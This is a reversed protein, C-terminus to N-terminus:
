VCVSVHIACAATPESCCTSGTASMSGAAWRSGVAHPTLVVADDLPTAQVPLARGDHKTGYEHLLEVLVIAEDHTLEVKM